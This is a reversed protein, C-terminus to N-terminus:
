SKSNRCTRHHRDQQPCQDNMPNLYTRHQNMLVRVQEPRSLINNSVDHQQDKIQVSGGRIEIQTNRCYGKGRIRKEAENTTVTQVVIGPCAKLNNSHDAIESFVFIIEEM